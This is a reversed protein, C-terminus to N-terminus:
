DSSVHPVLGLAAANGYYIKDIVGAPLALGKFSGNVLKSETSQDTTFFQWDRMWVEHMYEKLADSDQNGQDGLDTAYIIRDQYDIFFQRVKGRNSITQYFVQGMRAALDISANPYRELWRGLEEVSWELSAMHAGIFILDPHRDLRLDRARMQDEYSPMEPHKFMHYEPHQAFYDRDNNTTMEELPLWCNKPEGLHGIVPMRNKVLYDFVPDFAPDNLMVLQGSSDREVMGINKWIKVAVVGRDKCSDLWQITNEAWGPTQWNAMSFTTAYNVLRPHHDSKRFALKAQKRIPGMGKSQDYSITLVSFNDQEAQDLFTDRDAFLHVHADFKPIRSFDQLSYEKHQVPECAIFVVILVVFILLPYLKV